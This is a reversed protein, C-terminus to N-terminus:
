TGHEPMLCKPLTCHNSNLLRRKVEESPLQDLRTDGLGGALPVDIRDVLEARRGADALSVPLVSTPSLSNPWQLATEMNLDYGVVRSM